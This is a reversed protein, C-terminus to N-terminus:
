WACLMFQQCGKCHQVPFCVPANWSGMSCITEESFYSIMESSLVYYKIQLGRSKFKKPFTVLVHIGIQRFSTERIRCRSMIVDDFPFIKRTAPWKHPSNVPGLGTVRLKSTEKSRRRFLRNLLCDHPQHNSVGDCGDHRWRLPAHVTPM